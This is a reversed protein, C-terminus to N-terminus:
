KKQLEMVRDKVDRFNIDTEYLHTFLELAKQLSDEDGKSQLAMAEYYMAEKYKDFIEVGDRAKRFQSIAMDASGKALMCRGLNTLADLKFKPDKAAQQLEGIAEDYKKYQMYLTGLKNHFVAKLPQAKVRREYEKVQFDLDAKKIAQFQARADADGAKAKAQLALLQLRNKKIELDGLKDKIASNAPNLEFAKSYYEKAEQYGIDFDDMNFAIDGITIWIAYDKPREVLDHEQRYKIAKRRQTDNRLKGADMELVEAEEENALVKRSGHKAAQQFIQSSLQASVERILSDVDEEPDIAQIKNYCGLAEQTLNAQAYMDALVYLNDINDPAVSDAISQRQWIAVKLYEAEACLDALLFMLKLDTPNATLGNECDIIAEDIKKFAKHINAKILSIISTITKTGNERANRSQTARLALRADVNNPQLSVAQTYNFIALDYNRRAVAESAKKMLGDIKVSSKTKALTSGKRYM